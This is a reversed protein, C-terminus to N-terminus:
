IAVSFMILLTWISHVIFFLGCIFRMFKDDQQQALERAHHWDIWFTVWIMAGPTYAQGNRFCFPRICALWILLPSCALMVILLAILLM